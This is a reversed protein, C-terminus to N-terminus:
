VQQLEVKRGVVQLNERLMASDNIESLVTNVNPNQLVWTYAKVPLSEDGPVSTNLKQIRWEPVPKLEASIPSVIAAAKMCIFGMGAESAKRIAPEMSGQNGINYACQAVDIHGLEAARELVRSPDTHCSFANARIKGEKKLRAAWEAHFPDELEEPMRIGHPFHLVDIVDINMRQLSRDVIEHFKKELIGNWKRQWGYERRILAHLYAGEVENGHSPFFQFFYGPKTVQREEAWERARKRLAEQKEGPLGDFIEQSLRNLEGLYESIKTAVFVRERVGPEKFLVGWGEESQGRNYRSACDLYNVGRDIAERFVAVGEPNNIPGSGGMSLESVMFGTRGLRRYTMGPQRNRWEEPAPASATRSAKTGAALSQRGAIAAGAAIVAGKVFNRRTARFPGDSNEMAAM